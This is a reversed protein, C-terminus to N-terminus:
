WPATVISTAVIHTVIQFKPRESLGVMSSDCYMHNSHPNSNSIKTNESLGVMSSDCNHNSESDEIIDSEDWNESM